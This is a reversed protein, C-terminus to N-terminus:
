GLAAAGASQVIEYASPDTLRCTVRLKSTHM